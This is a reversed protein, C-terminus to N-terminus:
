ARCWSGRVVATRCNQSGDVSPFARIPYISVSKLMVGYRETQQRAAHRAIEVKEDLEGRLKGASAQAETKRQNMILKPKRKNEFDTRAYRQRRAPKTQAEVRQWEETKVKQEATRLM